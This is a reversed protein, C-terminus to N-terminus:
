GTVEGRRRRGTVERLVLEWRDLVPVLGHRARAEGMAATARGSWVEFESLAELLARSLDEGSGTRFLIGGTGGGLIERNAEIDSAVIVVGRVLAELLSNSMGELYSPLVLVKPWELRDWPGLVTGHLVVSRALSPDWAQRRLEEALGGDGIIELRVGQRTEGDLSDLFGRWGRMLVELGKHPWLTGLYWVRFDKKKERAAAEPFEVANVIRHFTSRSLGRDKLWASMADTTVVLADARALAKMALRGLFSKRLRDTETDCQPHSGFSAFRVLLPVRFLWTIVRLLLVSRDPMFSLVVDTKRIRGVLNWLLFLWWGLGGALLFPDALRIVCAGARLEIRPTDPKRQITLVTVRNGRKCLGRVLLESQTEMGGLSPAYWPTVLVLNMVGM